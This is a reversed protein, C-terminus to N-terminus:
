STKLEVALKMFILIYFTHMNSDIFYLLCAMISQLAIIITHLSICLKNNKSFYKLNLYILTEM